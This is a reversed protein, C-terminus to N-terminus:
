LALEKQAIRARVYHVAKAEIQDRERELTEQARYDFGKTRANEVQRRTAWIEHQMVPPVLQWCHRCMSYAFPLERGCGTPCLSM